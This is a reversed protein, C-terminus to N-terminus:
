ILGRTNLGIYFRWVLRCCLSVLSCSQMVWFHLHLSLIASPSCSLLASCLSLLSSLCSPQLLASGWSCTSSGWTSTPWLCRVSEGEETGLLSRKRLKSEPCTCMSHFNLSWWWYTEWWHEYFCSECCHSLSLLRWTMPVHTYLCFTPCLIWCHSFKFKLNHINLRPFLLMSQYLHCYLCDSLISFSFFPQSVLFGHQLVRQHPYLFAEETSVPLYPFHLLCFWYNIPFSNRSLIICFNQFYISVM